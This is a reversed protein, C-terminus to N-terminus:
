PALADELALRFRHAHPGVGMEFAANVASLLHQHLVRRLGKTTTADFTLAPSEFLTQRVLLLQEADVSRCGQLECRVLGFLDFDAVIVAQLLLPQAHMPDALSAQACAQVRDAVEDLAADAQPEALVFGSLALHRGLMELSSTLLSQCEKSGLVQRAALRCQRRLGLTASTM